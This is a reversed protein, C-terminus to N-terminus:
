LHKKRFKKLLTEEDEGKPIGEFLIELIGEVGADNFGAEIAFKKIMKREGETIVDDALIMQAVNYLHEFKGKLSYPPTYHHYAESRIISDIEPDTLGFKRGEKHLMKLEENGIKGDVRATQVLHIYHEKCVRRGGSLMFDSFSMSRNILDVRKKSEIM